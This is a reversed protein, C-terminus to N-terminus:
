ASCLITHWGIFVCNLSTMMVLLFTTLYISFTFTTNHTPGQHCRACKYEHAVYEYTPLPSINLQSSGHIPYCEEQCLDYSQGPWHVGQGGRQVHGSIAGSVSDRVPSGSPRSAAEEGSHICGSSWGSNGHLGPRHYNTRRQFLASGLHSRM